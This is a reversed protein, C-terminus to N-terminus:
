IYISDFACRLWYTINFAARATLFFRFLPLQETQQICIGICTHEMQLLEFGIEIALQNRIAAIICNPMSPITRDM